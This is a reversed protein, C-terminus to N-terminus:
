SIGDNISREESGGRAAAIMITRMKTMRLRMIVADWARGKQALLFSAVEKDKGDLHCTTDKLPPQHLCSMSVRKNFAIRQRQLLLLLLM